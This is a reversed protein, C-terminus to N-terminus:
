RPRTFGVHFKDFDIDIGFGFAGVHIKELFVQPVVQLVAFSFGCFLRSELLRPEGRM